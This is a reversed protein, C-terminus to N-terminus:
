NRIAKICEIVAGLADQGTKHQLQEKLFSYQRAGLEEVDIVGAAIDRLTERLEQISYCKPGPIDLITITHRRREFIELDYHAIFPIVCKGHLIAELSATSVNGIVFDARHIAEELRIGTHDYYEVSNLTEEPVHRGIQALSQSGGPPHGKLILNISERHFLLSLEGVLSYDQILPYFVTPAKTSQGQKEDNKKLEIPWGTVQIQSLHNYKQIYDKCANSYVLVDTFLKLDYFSPLGSPANKFWFTHPFFVTKLKAEKAAILMSLVYKKPRGSVITTPAGELFINKFFAILAIRSHLRKWIDQASEESLNLSNAIKLIYERKFSIQRDSVKRFTLKRSFFYVECGVIKLISWNKTNKPMLVACSHKKEKEIGAILPLFSKVNSQNTGTFIIKDNLKTM